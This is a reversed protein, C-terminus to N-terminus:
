VVSKRDEAAAFLDRIDTLTLEQGGAKAWPLSTLALLFAILGVVGFLSGLGLPFASGGGSRRDHDRDPPREYAERRDPPGVPHQRPGSAYGGRQPQRQTPPRRVGAAPQQHQPYAQTRYPDDGPLQRPRPRATPAPAPAPAQVQRPDARPARRHYPDSPDPGWEQQGQQGQQEHTWGGQAQPRQDFVSDSSEDGFFTDEAARRRDRANGRRDEAWFAEDADDARSRRRPDSWPEHRDSM